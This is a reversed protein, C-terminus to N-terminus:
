LSFNIIHPPCQSLPLFCYFISLGPTFQIFPLFLSFELFLFRFVLFLCLFRVAVFILHYTKLPDKENGTMKLILMRIFVFYAILCIQCFIPFLGTYVFRMMFFIDLQTTTTYYFYLFNEVVFISYNYPFLLYLTGQYYGFYGFSVSCTSSPLHKFFYIRYRGPYMWLYSKDYNVQIKNFHSKLARLNNIM